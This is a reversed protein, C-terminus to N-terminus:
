IEDNDEEETLYIEFVDTNPNIGFNSIYSNLIKENFFSKAIDYKFSAESFDYLGFEFWFHKHGYIDPYVRVITTDWDEEKSSPVYRFNYTILFQKFTINKM